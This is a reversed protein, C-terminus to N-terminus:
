YELHYRHSLRQKFDKVRSLADRLLDRELSSLSQTIILNRSGAERAATTQDQGDNRADSAGSAGHEDEELHRLQQRLRLEAFLSLAEALDASDSAEIRGDSVLAELRAFTGTAMVGRELAMTRVGHV